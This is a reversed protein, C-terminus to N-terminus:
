TRARDQPNRRAARREDRITPGLTRVRAPSGLLGLETARQLAGQRSSVGLKRYLTAASTLVEHRSVVLREGIERFTLATPLYRLVGAEAASLAATTPAGFRSPVGLETM